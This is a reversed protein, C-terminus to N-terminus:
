IFIRVGGRKVSEVMEDVQRGAEDMEMSEVNNGGGSGSGGVIASSGSGGASGEEVEQVADAALRIEMGM